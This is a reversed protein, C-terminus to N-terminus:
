HFLAEPENGILNFKSVVNMKLHLACIKLSFLIGWQCALDSVVHLMCGRDSFMAEDGINMGVEVCNMFKGCFM